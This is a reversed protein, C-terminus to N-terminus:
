FPLPQGDVDVADEDEDVPNPDHPPAWHARLAEPLQPDLIELALATVEIDKSLHLKARRIDDAL